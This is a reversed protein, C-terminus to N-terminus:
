VEFAKAWGDENALGALGAKDGHDLFGCIRGSPDRERRLAMLKRAKEDTWFRTQRIQFDSDGLYAGECQPAVDRMVNRIWEQCRADDEAKEWITYLAFYHDSQMSLAMNPLERRSCPAMAYWLAFTKSTPLTTFGRELVAAVDANNKVYGNDACYRHGRPNANAQDRYEKAISTAKNVDEVICGHPRTENASKLAALCEEASDKFAVFLPIICLEGIDPPTAAVAVIETDPDFNPTIRIVWNMVERYKSIPYVFTSSLMAKVKPRCQLHFRMVVGPFGTHADTDNMSPVYLNM